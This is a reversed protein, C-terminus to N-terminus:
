LVGSYWPLVVASVPAYVSVKVIFEDFMRQTEVVTPIAFASVAVAALLIARRMTHHVPLPIIRQCTVSLGVV